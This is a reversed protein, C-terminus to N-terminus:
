EGFVTIGLYGDNALEEYTYTVIKTGSPTQEEVTIKEGDNGVVLRVHDVGEVTAIADGPTLSLYTPVLGSGKDGKDAGGVFDFDAAMEGDKEYGQTEYYHYLDPYREEYYNGPYISGLIEPVSFDVSVLTTGNARDIMTEVGTFETRWVDGLLSNCDAGYLPMHRNNKDLSTYFDSDYNILYDIVELVRRNKQSYPIDQYTEGEEFDIGSSGTEYNYWGDLNDEATWTYDSYEQARTLIDNRANVEEESIPEFTEDFTKDFTNSFHLMRKDEVADNDWNQENEKEYTEFVDERVHSVFRGDYYGAEGFELLEITYQDSNDQESETSEQESEFFSDDFRIDTIGDEAQNEYELDTEMTIDAESVLGTFKLNTVSADDGVQSGMEDILKSEDYNFGSFPQEVEITGETNNKLFNKIEAFVGAGLQGGTAKNTDEATRDNGKSILNVANQYIQRLGGGSSVPETTGAANSTNVKNRGKFLSKLLGPKSAKSQASTTERNQKNTGANAKVTEITKSVSQVVSSLKKVIPTSRLASVKKESITKAPSKVAHIAKKITAALGNNKINQAINKLLGM